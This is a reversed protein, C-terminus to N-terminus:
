DWVYREDMEIGHKECLLRFEDQYSRKAHHQEQNWASYVFPGKPRRPYSFQRATPGQSNITDAGWGKLSM